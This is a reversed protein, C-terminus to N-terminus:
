VFPGYRDYMELYKVRIRAVFDTAAHRKRYVFRVGPSNRYPIDSLSGMTIGNKWLVYTLSLQDRRSHNLVWWWDEMAKKVTADGHRRFLINTEFLGYHTPFGDRRMLDIQGKMVDIDDKRLEICADLEDYLCDRMPHNSAAISRKERVVRGVDDFVGADLIDVNGDVWLSIGYEPFLVHPHLKHWRQNRVPDTEGFRLPRIDWKTNNWNRISLNDSFCVYEWDPHMFAHDRLWDYGGTICTYVIGKKM